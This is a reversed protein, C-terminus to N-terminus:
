RCVDAKLLLVINLGGEFYAPENGTALNKPGSVFRLRPETTLYGINSILGHRQTAPVLYPGRSCTELGYEGNHFRWLGRYPM